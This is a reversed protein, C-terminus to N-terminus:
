IEVSTRKSKIANNKQTGILIQLLLKKAENHSNVHLLESIVSFLTM